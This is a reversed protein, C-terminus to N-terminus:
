FPLPERQLAVAFVYAVSAFAVILAGIRARQTRGRKLAVSGAVIYVVIAVLKVAFWSQQVPSVMFGIALTVGSLLLLTDLLHPAVNVWGRRRMPSEVLMWYARIGFGSVSLVALVVHLTKIPILLAMDM